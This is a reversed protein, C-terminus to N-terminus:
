TAFSSVQGDVKQMVLRSDWLFSIIRSYYTFLGNHKGCFRMPASRPSISTYASGIGDNITQQHIGNTSPHHGPSAVGYSTPVDLRYQPRITSVPPTGADHKGYRTITMDGGAGRNLAPTSHLPLRREAAAPSSPISRGHASYRNRVQDMDSTISNRSGHLHLARIAAERVVRETSAVALLVCSACGEDVQLWDIYKNELILHAVSGIFYPALYIFYHVTLLEFLSKAEKSDPGFEVLINRLVDVPRM